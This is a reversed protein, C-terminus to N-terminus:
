INNYNQMQPFDPSIGPQVDSNNIQNNPVYNNNINNINNNFNNNDIPNENQRPTGNNFNLEKIPMKQTENTKVFSPFDNNNTSNTEKDKNKSFLNLNGNKCKKNIFLILHAFINFLIYFIDLALNISTYTITNKTNVNELRLVENTKEDSCDYALDYKIIRGLFVAQCIVCTLNLALCIILFCFFVDYKSVKSNYLKKRKCCRTYCPEIALGLFFAFIILAEVLSCTKEMDQNKTLKKYDKKKINTKEDCAKDIGLFERKFLSVHNNKLEEIENDFINYNSGLNDQYLKDYTIDGKNDFRDDEYKGFVEHKCKLNEEGAEESVFTRWKKENLRYCPQGENLILKGIIRKDDANYVENNYYANGETENKSIYNYTDSNQGIGVDYLPCSEENKICLEQELTDIIGCNKQYEQPCTEGKKIIQGNYLLDKYSIYKYCFLYGNLKTIDTVDVIRTRSRRRGGSYYYDREERGAWTHFVVASNSGCTTEISFDFLPSSEFVDFINGFDTEKILFFFVFHVIGILLIFAFDVIVFWNNKLEPFLCM